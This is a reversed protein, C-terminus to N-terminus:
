GDLAPKWAVAADAIDFVDQGFSAPRDHWWVAVQDNELKDWDFRTDDYRVLTLATAVTNGASDTVEWSYLLPMSPIVFINQTFWDFSLEVTSGPEIDLEVRNVNDFRVEDRPGFLFAASVIEGESSSAEVSFSLREPFNNTIDTATFTIPSSQAQM